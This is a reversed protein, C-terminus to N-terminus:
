IVFRNMDSVRQYEEVISRAHAPELGQYGWYIVEGQTHFANIIQFDRQRALNAMAIAEPETLPRKGPFDRPQPSTPKRTTETEWLAPFQNNLDVGRINAKWNSFDRHGDNMSIVEEKWEGSAESGKLVLNVGDPNVMPVVSLQTNQFYSLVHLDRIPEHNTLSLAYQNLFKMIVPTTIWENAHFSGNIHRLNTGTGIQLELIDKGLVSSGISQSQIFPYVSVLHKIDNVMKDYTYHNIDTIIIDTVRHPILLTQGIQLEKPDIEPNALQLGDLPLQHTQALNWLTDNPKIHYDKELFGPIEITQGITLSHPNVNPNSAEIIPLPISFLQSYYWLTDGQRVQVKM